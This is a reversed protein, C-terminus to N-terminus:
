AVSFIMGLGSVLRCNFASEPNSTLPAVPRVAPAVATIERLFQDRSMAPEVAADFPRAKSPLHRALRSSPSQSATACPEQAKATM